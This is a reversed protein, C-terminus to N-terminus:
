KTVSAAVWKQTEDFARRLKGYAQTGLDLNDLDAQTADRFEDRAIDYVRLETPNAARYETETM